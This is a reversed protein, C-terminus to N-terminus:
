SQRRRGPSAADPRVPSPIFGGPALTRQADPWPAEIALPSTPQLDGRALARAMLGYCSSDSGGVARTGNVIGFTALAIAALAAIFWGAAGSGQRLRTM